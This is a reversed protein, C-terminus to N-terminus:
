PRSTRSLADAAFRRASAASWPRPEKRKGRLAKARLPGYRGTRVVLWRGQEDALPTVFYVQEIFGPTPGAYTGYQDIAKAANENRPAIQGVPAVVTAGEELLPPGFNAHYIM